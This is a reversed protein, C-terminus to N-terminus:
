QEKINSLAVKKSKLIELFVEATKRYDELENYVQGCVRTFWGGDFKGMALYTNYKTRLEEQVELVIKDDNVPLWVCAM